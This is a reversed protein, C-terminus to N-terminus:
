NLTLRQVRCGWRGNAMRTATFHRALNNRGPRLANVTTIHDPLGGSFWKLVQGGTGQEYPAVIDIIWLRNGSYWDQTELPQGSLFRDEATEDMLAWTVCARPIHGQRLIAFQGSDVAPQIFHLLM